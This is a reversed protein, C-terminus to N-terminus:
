NIEKTVDGCELMVDGFYPNRIEKELSLWFAGKNDNAMPCYQNYIKQNVGFIEVSSTLYSSLQIFHTRLEKINSVNEISVATTRIKKELLMWQKHATDNTLLKMNVKDLNSVISSAAKKSDSTNEKVLANKLVTYSNFVAKLQEQFEPSVEIRNNTVTQIGENEQNITEASLNGEHGTTSKSGGKNMMSKKGQLQAAADMTFTGSMVIEDGSNLGILVEYSEGIKNGLTIERMEFVPENSNSKIYVVSRKGTWLVATAPIILPQNKGSEIIIVKGEVFMGPKFLGAKNVLVTRLKVTRTKADLMPDIFTVKTKFEKSPYSNTTIVVEQGVKFLSIQNEFVDFSTWVTSLNSIRLLPAGEVVYNGEEVIKESVIGSVNAYIPFNIIPKKSLEIKNIQNDSLKWLKLKNRVANYLAPQLKKLSLATLLEQQAAVLEPSYILALLQGKSIKEGESSIYLKEIRGSFHATQVTMNDENEVIKGALKIANGDVSGIGVVTTQINALAMANKTLKFQDAALGTAGTEAPILDMGCIPCDGAEPRMIQPHMSCTWQQNLVETEDHNHTTENASSDGSFFFWGLLLGIVLIAIYKIYTKM